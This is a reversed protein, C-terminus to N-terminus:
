PPEHLLTSALHTGAFRWRSVQPGNSQPSDCCVSALPSFLWQIPWRAGPEVPEMAEEADELFPIDGLKESSQVKESVM